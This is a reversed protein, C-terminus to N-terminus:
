KKFSVIKISKVNERGKLNINSWRLTPLEYKEKLVLRKSKNKKDYERKLKNTTQVQIIHKLPDFKVACIEFKKKGM